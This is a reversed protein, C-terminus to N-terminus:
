PPGTAAPVAAPASLPATQAADRVTDTAAGPPRKRLYVYEMLDTTHGGFSPIAIILEIWLPHDPRIGLDCAIDVLVAGIPRNRLDAAIAAATPLRPAADAQRAPSASRTTRLALPRPGADIAAREQTVRNALANALALGRLIRSLILAFDTSGFMTKVRDPDLSPAREQFASALARGYRILSHILGLLRDSRSPEPQTQPPLTAAASM